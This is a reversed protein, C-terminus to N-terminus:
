AEPGTAPQTASPPQAEGFTLDTDAPLKEIRTAEFRINDGTGVEFTIRVKDGAKLGELSVGKAPPFPMTMSDMGIIEGDRVYDDVPEHRVLLDRNESSVQQVIGRTTYRHVPGDQKRKQQSPSDSCGPALLVVPSLLLTLGLWGVGLSGPRGFRSRQGVLPSLM